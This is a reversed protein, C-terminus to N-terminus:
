TTSGKWTTKKVMGLPGISFLYIVLLIENFFFEIVSFESHFIKKGKATIAGDINFKIMLAILSYFPQIFFGFAISLHFLHISAYMLQPKIQYHKTASIHRTRQNIFQLLSQAPITQVYSNPDIMYRIKWKTEQQILQLFLDDDGSVSHKIKEFGGVERYVKKRYAFNAGSCLYAHQLAITSSAFIAKKLTDYRLFSNETGKINPCYGAVVGVDDTFHKTIENLWYEPVICDADTFAIIDFKTQEIATRLANKKNPMDSNNEEINVLRINSHQQMFKNVISATSDTSRDNAIIIEYKDTPYQQKILSHLLAAINKEENRAAIVVSIPQTAAFPLPKLLKKLGIWLFVHIVLYLTTFTILLWLFLQEVM